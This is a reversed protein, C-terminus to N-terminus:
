GLWIFLNIKAYNEFSELTQFSNQKFSEALCNYAYNYDKANIADIFKNINYGAKEINTAKEYKEIFEQQDITYTDLFIKYDGTQLDENIIYYNGNKDLCVYEVYTDYAYKAYKSIEMNSFRKKNMNVYERFNEINGFRKQQYESDLINYLVDSEYNLLNKIIDYYLNAIRVDTMVVLSFTNDENKEIIIEKLYEENIKGEKIKDYETNPIQELQYTSNIYDLYAIYYVENYDEIGKIAYTKGQANNIRFIEEIYCYKQSNKNVCEQLIYLMTKSIEKEVDKYEYNTTDASAYEEEINYIDEGENKKLFVILGILIIAFIILIVVIIMIIKKNNRM